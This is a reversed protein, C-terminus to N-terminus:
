KVTVVTGRIPVIDLVIRDNAADWSLEGGAHGTVTRTANTFNVETDSSGAWYSGFDMLYITTGRTRDYASIDVNITTDSWSGQQALFGATTLTTFGTESLVFNLVRAGANAIYFHGIQSAGDYYTIENELVIGKSITGYVDMTTSGSLRFVQGLNALTGHVTLDVDTFHEGDFTVSSNTAVELSTFTRSPSTDQANTVTYGPGIYLRQSQVPVFDRSWNAGTQWNDDGGEDDWTMPQIGNLRLAIGMDGAGNIPYAYDVVTNNTETYGTINTAGFADFISGYEFLVLDLGNNTNYNTLDVELPGAMRVANDVEFVTVGGANAIFETTWNPFSANYSKARASAGAELVLRRTADNSNQWINANSMDLTGGGAVTLVCTGFRFVLNAVQNSLYQGSGITFDTDLTPELPATVLEVSDNTSTPLTTDGDWNGTTTWLGNAGEGDWQRVAAHSGTVMMVLIMIAPIMKKM